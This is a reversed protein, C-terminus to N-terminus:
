KWFKLILTTLPLSLIMALPLAFITIVCFYLVNGNFTKPFMPDLVFLVLLVSFLITTVGVYFKAKSKM